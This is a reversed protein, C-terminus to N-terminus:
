KFGLLEALPIFDLYSHTTPQFYQHQPSPANEAKVACLGHAAVQVGRKKLVYAAAELAGVNFITHDV